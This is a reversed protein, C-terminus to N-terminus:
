IDLITVFLAFIYLDSCIGYSQNFILITWHLQVSGVPQHLIYVLIICNLTDMDIPIDQLKNNLVIAFKSDGRFM